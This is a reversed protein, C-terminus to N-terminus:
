ILASVDTHAGLLQRKLSAVSLLISPRWSAAVGLASLKTKDVNQVSFVSVDTANMQMQLSAHAILASSPAFLQTM